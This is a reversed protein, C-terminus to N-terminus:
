NVRKLHMFRLAFVVGSLLIGKSVTSIIWDQKKAKETAEEYPIRTFSVMTYLPIWYSPFFRHLVAEIRKKLRFSWSATHQRMVIYNYFSLDALADASPKRSQAFERVCLSLSNRHKDLFSNFILCDEFAANMGQGYFPVIAHAADGILVVKDKLNWPEVRMTALSGTPNRLYEQALNPILPIIDPFHKQFHELVQEETELQLLGEYPAFLTCTFSKDPNPLAILMFKERPWIHLANVPTLAFDNEIPPLSLEKYGHPIYYQSFNQRCHRSMCSLSVTPKDRSSFQVRGVKKYSFISWRSWDRSQIDKSVTGNGSFKFGSPIFAPNRVHSIIAKGDADVDKLTHQFYLTVNPLTDASDLLLHNLDTRSVSYIAQNQQGYPQTVLTDANLHIARERNIM